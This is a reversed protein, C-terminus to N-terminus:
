RKAPSPAADQDDLTRLRIKRLAATTQWSAIGLPRSLEVEPRISLKRGRIDADIVREDDIWAQIREQEVRLRIRYWQEKKFTALHTTENESADFGDLSSLGVVAGAWGGVILSCPADGVPFTLGCFFDIGDLRTAELEIEYNVKPVERTCTIGTMDSGTELVIEGNDVYVEGEGGFETSKWGDLTKGDFLPTWNKEEAARASAMFGLVLVVVFWAHVRARSNATGRASPMARDTPPPAAGGHAALHSDM